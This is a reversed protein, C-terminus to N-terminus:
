NWLEGKSDVYYVDDCQCCILTIIKKDEALVMFKHHKCHECILFDRKYTPTKTQKM